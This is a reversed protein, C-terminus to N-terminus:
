YLDDEPLPKGQMLRRLAPTPKKPHKMEKLIREFSKRTLVITPPIIFEEPIERLAQLHHRLAQEIVFSKKLGRARVFRELDEKVDEPIFGSIQTEKM